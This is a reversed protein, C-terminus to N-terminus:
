VMTLTGGIIFVMIERLLNYNYFHFSFIDKHLQRDKDVAVNGTKGSTLTEVSGPRQYTSPRGAKYLMGPQVLHAPAQPCLLIHGDPLSLLVRCTIISSQFHLSFQTLPKIRVHILYISHKFPAQCM